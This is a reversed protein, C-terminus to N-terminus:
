RRFPNGGLVASEMGRQTLWQDNEQPIWMTVSGNGLLDIAGYAATDIQDDHRPRRGDGLMGQHEKRWEELWRAAEPLWVRRRQQMASYPTARQEKTGSAKAPEVHYGALKRQFSELVTKGAGAREQEILVKVGYGDTEACAIVAREVDSTSRQFRQRDLIYLDGNSGLGMLTGVTWDGGGETTALDWVRVKRSMAPINQSNWYMWMARPFMGGEPTSPRQQYLSSWLFADMGGDRITEYQERSYREPNLPEGMARGLEDRWAEEDIVIEDDRPEALAPFDLVEWQDGSYGEKRMREILVGSLDDEAWRTATILITGGPHLRSRLTTDYWDEHM